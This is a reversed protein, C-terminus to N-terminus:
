LAVNPRCFDGKVSPCGSAAYLRFEIVSIADAFVYLGVVGFEGVCACVAAHVFM